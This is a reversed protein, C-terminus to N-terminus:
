QHSSLLNSYYDCEAKYKKRDRFLFELLQDASSLIIVSLSFWCTCNSLSSCLCTMLLGLKALKKGRLEPLANLKQIEMKGSTFHVPPEIQKHLLILVMSTSGTLLVESNRSEQTQYTKDQFQLFEQGSSMSKLQTVFGCLNLTICHLYM